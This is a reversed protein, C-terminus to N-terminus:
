MRHSVRAGRDHAVFQFRRHGYSGMLAVMDAAMARKTYPADDDSVPPKASKGYGTIDPCYVSFRRALVPAVKHWMAHTQPNGHLLLLPPGEGARRLRFRKGAAEQFELTFGEFFMRVPDERGCRRM